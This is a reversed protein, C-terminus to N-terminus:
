GRTLNIGFKAERARRKLLMERAELELAHEMDGCNLAVDKAKNCAIACETLKDAYDQIGYPVRASTNIEKMADLRNILSKFAAAIYMSSNSFGNNYKARETNITDNLMTIVANLTKTDYSM